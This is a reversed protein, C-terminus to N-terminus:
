DSEDSSDEYNLLVSKPNLAKPKLPFDNLEPDLGPAWIPKKPPDEDETTENLHVVTEGKEGSCCFM